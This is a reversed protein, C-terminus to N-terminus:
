WGSPDHRALVSAGSRPPLIFAADDDRQRGVAQNDCPLHGTHVSRKRNNLILGWAESISRAIDMMTPTSVVM